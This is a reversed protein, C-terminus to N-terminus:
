GKQSLNSKKLYYWAALTDTDVGMFYAVLIVASICMEHSCDRFTTKKCQNLAVNNWVGLEQWRRGSTFISDPVLMPRGIGNRRTKLVFDVDELLKSDKFGDVKELASAKAFFAQDGYPLHLLWTRLRVGMTVLWM